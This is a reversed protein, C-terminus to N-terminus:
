WEDIIRGAVRTALAMVTLQPNVAVPGPFLSADAVYLRETDYVAGHPDCVSTAPDAGIRATGMLHVTTLDLRAPAVPTSALRRLDDVSSAVPVGDVPLHIRRAGAAFLAEGLLSVARVVRHSDVASVPYTVAVNTRGLARVRGAATDEVLVGATVMRPYETMAADIGGLPDRVVRSTLSPPLNVAALIVGDDEFERVQYSQHAGTWGDVDDDFVAAVAAGPHLTLNRGVQRSPTTIRSRQLLAPTQVAGASLVVRKGRLQVRRGHVTATVGTARKGDFLVRDVRCGTWVTAGFHIARPLYSVLVSQKAGTPCGWVCVNCGGCHVHARRDEVTRWGLRDAGAKLLLQDRGISGPDPAAVSLFREVRAYEDDFSLRGLGAVQGWHELVRPSARFAMGGNVVTSGGVCRGESFQIPATGLTTSAGCDRYLLRLQDMTRTTFDETRRHEGEELVAVRLGAEALEAAVVGGGAGSGVVIVDYEADAPLATAPRVGGVAPAVARPSRLPLRRMLLQQHASIADSWTDSRRRAVAAVWADPVYGLRERVDPQEYYAMLVLDRALLAVRRVVLPRAQWWELYRAASEGDLGRLRRYGFRRRVSGLDLLAVGVALLRRAAPPLAGVFIELEAVAAAVDRDPLTRDISARLVVAFVQRAARM